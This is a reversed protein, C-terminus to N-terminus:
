CFVNMRRTEGRTVEIVRPTFSFVTFSVNTAKFTVFVNMNYENNYTIVCITVSVEMTDNLIFCVPFRRRRLLSNNLLRWSISHDM